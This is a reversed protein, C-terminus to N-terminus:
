GFGVPVPLGGRVREPLQGRDTLFLLVGDSVLREYSDLTRPFGYFEPDKLLM